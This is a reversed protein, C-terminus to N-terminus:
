FSDVSPCGVQNTVRMESEPIGIGAFASALSPSVDPTRGLVWGGGSHYVDFLSTCSYVISYTEYDTDLVRYDGWPQYDSFRVFCNGSGDAKCYAPGAVSSVSGDPRVETNQVRFIGNDFMTYQATSCDGTEVMISSDRAIEYWLGAYSELDFNEVADASPCPGFGSFAITPAALCALTIALLSM